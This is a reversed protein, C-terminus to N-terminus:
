PLMLALLRHVLQAATFDAFHLGKLPALEVVDAGIVRRGAVVRDLLRMAQHWCLGGAVPTGTAPMQSPDLADVDFTIYLQTPFDPPLLRRPLASGQLQDADFSTLLPASRRWEAEERSYARTGLQLIPFGLEAVRRMVCAHSLRSGEYSDRLDAHADFHIFGVPVRAAALARAAGLTVTHEGGLLLPRAKLALARVVAAEIAALWATADAEQPLKLARQTHLGAAGPSKGRDHDELQESAAIIARPGHRTGSGYSVSLEMPVPIIHSAAQAAPSNPFESALFHPQRSRTTTM